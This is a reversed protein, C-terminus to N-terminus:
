CATHLLANERFTTREQRKHQLIKPEYAIIVERFAPLILSKSRKPSCQVASDRSEGGASQAARQQRLPLKHYLLRLATIIGGSKLADKARRGCFPRCGCFSHM